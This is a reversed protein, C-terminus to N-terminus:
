WDRSSAPANGGEKRAQIQSFKKLDEDLGSLWQEAQDKSITNEQNQALESPNSEKQEPSSPDSNEQPEKPPAPEKNDQKASNEQQNDSKNEASPNQKPNQHDDADGDQPQNQKQDQQDKKKLQERVFELNFKADMDRPNMELVKKYAAISEEHKGMRYLANGSNYLSNQQLEPPAKQVTAHGYSKLAKEYQGNKYHSNALNYNLKPNEPQEKQAKSFNAEAQDFNQQRYDEIGAQINSDVSDALVKNTAFSWFILTIFLLQFSYLFFPKMFKELHHFRLM